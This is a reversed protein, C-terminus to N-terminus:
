NWHDFWADPDEPVHASSLGDEGVRQCDHSAIDKHGQTVSLVDLTSGPKESLSGSVGASVIYSYGDRIFRISTQYGGSGQGRVESLFATRDHRNSSIIIETSGSTGFRYTVAARSACVSVVKDAYRCVFLPTEDEGCREAGSAPAAGAPATDAHASGSWCLTPALIVPASLAWMCLTRVRSKMCPLYGATDCGALAPEVVDRVMCRQPAPSSAHGPRLKGVLGSTRSGEGM